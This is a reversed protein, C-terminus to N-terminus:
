LVQGRFGPINWPWTGRRASIGIKETRSLMSQRDREAKIANFTGLMADFDAKAIAANEATDRAYAALAESAEIRRRAMERAAERPADRVAAQPWGLAKANRFNEVVSDITVRKNDAEDMQALLSPALPADTTQAGQTVQDEEPTYLM